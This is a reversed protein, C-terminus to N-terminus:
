YYIITDENKEIVQPSGSMNNEILKTKIEAMANDAYTDWIQVKEIDEAFTSGHKLATFLLLDPALKLLATKNNSFSLHDPGSYYHCYVKDLKAQDHFVWKDALTAYYFDDHYMGAQKHRILERHSTHRGVTNNNSYIEILEELDKPIEAQNDEVKLEVVKEYEPLKLMRFIELEAFYIFSPISEVTSSDDRNLWIKIQDILDQYTSIM